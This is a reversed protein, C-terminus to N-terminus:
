TELTSADTCNCTIRVGVEREEAEMGGRLGPKSAVRSHCCLTTIM